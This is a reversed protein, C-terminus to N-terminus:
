YLELKDFDLKWPFVRSDRRVPRSLIDGHKGSDGCKDLYEGYGQYGQNGSAGEADPLSVIRM